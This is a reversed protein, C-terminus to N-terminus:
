KKKGQLVKTRVLSTIVLIVILLLGICKINEKAFKILKNIVSLVSVKDDAQPKKDPKVPEEVSPNEEVSVKINFSEITTRAIETAEGDVFKYAIVQWNYLGNSLEETIQFDSVKGTNKVFRNNIYLDYFDLGSKEEMDEWDLKPTNDTITEGDIPDVLDFEYVVEPEPDLPTDPLNVVFTEISSPGVLVDGTRYSKVQWTHSAESLETSVQYSTETDDVTAVVVDDILVKYHDVETNTDTWDLLPTADDIEASDIPSVLTPDPVEISFTIEASEGMVIVGERYAIVKWSHEGELLGLTVQFETETGDVSDIVVDDIIVDYHDIETNTFGDDTPVDWSLLPTADAIEQDEVPTVATFEYTPLTYNPNSVIADFNDAFESTRSTNNTALGTFQRNDLGNSGAVTVDATWNYWNSAGDVLDPTSATTVVTLPDPCAGNGDVNDDALCVEIEFPDEAVNGDLRGNIRYEGSGLYEVTQIEPHNMIQATGSDVDGADNPNHGNFDFAFSIEIPRIGINSIVNNRYKNGLGGAPSASVSPDWIGYNSGTITNNQILKGGNRGEIGVDFNTVINDEITAVANSSHNIGSRAVIPLVGSVINNRATVTNHIFLGGAANIVTNNEVIYNNGRVAFAVSTANESYNDHFTSGSITVEVQENSTATSIGGYFDNEYVEMGTTTGQVFLYTVANPGTTMGFYPDPTGTGFYNHHIKSIDLTIITTGVYFGIDTADSFTNYAAVFERRATILRVHMANYRFLNGKNLDGIKLTLVDNTHVAGINHIAWVQARNANGTTDTGFFNNYIEVRPIDSTGLNTVIGYRDTGFTNRQSATDGGVVSLCDNVLFVGANGTPTTEGAGTSGNIIATTGDSGLGFKNGAINITKGSSGTGCSAYVGALHNGAFINGDSTSTGITGSATTFLIGYGNRDTTAASTLGNAYPGLYSNTLTFGDGTVEIAANASGFRYLTLANVKGNIGAFSLGNVAGATHGDIVIEPGSTNQNGQNTTQTAGDITVGIATITPLVTAPTILWYDDGTSDGAGGDFDVYSGDSTPINFAITHPGATANAEQIAARLSCTGLPTSCLGDTSSDTQDGTSDVTFTAAHSIDPFLLFM